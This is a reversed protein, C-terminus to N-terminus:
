KFFSAGAGGRNRKLPSFQFAGDASEMLLGSAKTKPKRAGAANGFASGTAGSLVSGGKFVGFRGPLPKSSTANDNANNNNDDDDDFLTKVLGGLKRKKSKQKEKQSKDMRTTPEPDLVFSTFTALSKRVKQKPKRQQANEKGEAAAPKSTTGDDDEGGKLPIKSVTTKSQKATSSKKPQQASMAEEDEENDDEDEEEVKELQEIPKPAKKARGSSGSTASSATKEINAENAPVPALPLKKLKTTKAVAAPSAVDDSDAESDSAGHGANSSPSGEPQISLTRNLFPTISFTSKDGVAAAAAAAAAKRGKKAPKDQGPTGLKQSDPDIEGAKRKKTAPKTTETTSKKSKTIPIINTQVSAAAAHQAEALQDETEKLRAKTSKLKSRFQNLKDDLLAKTAEWDQQSKSLTKEVREREKKDAALQRRADELQVEFGAENEALKADNASKKQDSKELREIEARASDLAEEAKERKRKERTLSKQLDSLQEEQDLEFVTNRRKAQARKTESRSHELQVQIESLQRQLSLKETLLSDNSSLRARLYELEPKLTSLERTLELKETLLKESDTTINHLAKTEARLMSVEQDMARLEAELDTARAEADEARALNDQVLKELSEARDEEQALLDRLEESDDELIHSQARLKRISEDKSLIDILHTSRNYALELQSSQLSLQDYNSDLSTHMTSVVAM